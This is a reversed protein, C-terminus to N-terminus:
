LKARRQTAAIVIATLLAKDTEGNILELVCRQRDASDVNNAMKALLLLVSRRTIMVREKERNPPASVELMGEDRMKEVFDLSRGLCRAVQPPTLWVASYPCAFNFFGEDVLTLVQRSLVPAVYPTSM